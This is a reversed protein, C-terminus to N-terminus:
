RLKEGVNGIGAAGLSPAVSKGSNQCDGGARYQASHASILSYGFPSVAETGFGASTKAATEFVAAMDYGALVDYAVDKDTDIGRLQITGQLSPVLCVSCRVFTKGDIALGHAIRDVILATLGVDHTGNTM